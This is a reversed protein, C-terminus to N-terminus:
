RAVAAAVAATWPSNPHVAGVNPAGNRGARVMSPIAFQVPYLADEAIRVPHDASIASAVDAPAARNVLM